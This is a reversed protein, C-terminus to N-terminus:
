EKILKDTFLVEGDALVECLYMGMSWTSIPIINDQGTILKIDAILSGNMAWAKFVYEKESDFELIAITLTKNAPNPYVTFESVVEIPNVNLILDDCNEVIGTEYHGIEADEYCRLPGPFSNVLSNFPIMYGLNGIKEINVNGWTAPGMISIEQTILNMGSLNISDYNIVTVLTSDPANLGSYSMYSQGLTKSFDYLVRFTSDQQIYNYIVKGEQYIYEINFDDSYFDNIIIKCVKGDIITDGIVEKVEPPYDESSAKKNTYWWKAGVPAFEPTQSFAQVCSLCIATALLAKRIYLQLKQM